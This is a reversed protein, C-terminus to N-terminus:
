AASRILTSIVLSTTFNPVNMSTTLPWILLFAGGFAAVLSAFAFAILRLSRLAMALLLFSISVTISDSVAVDLLISSTSDSTVVLGGTVDGSLIGGADSLASSLESRLKLLFATYERTIVFGTPLTRWGPTLCTPRLLSACCSRM